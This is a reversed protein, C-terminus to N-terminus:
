LQQEEVGDGGIRDETFDNPLLTEPGCQIRDQPLLLSM